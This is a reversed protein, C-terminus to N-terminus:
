SGRSANVFCKYLPTPGIRSADGRVDLADDGRRQRGRHYVGAGHTGLKGGRESIKEGSQDLLATRGGGVRKMATKATTGVM